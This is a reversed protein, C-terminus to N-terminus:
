SLKKLGKTFLIRCEHSKKLSTHLLYEIYKWQCEIYFVEYRKGLPLNNSPSPVMSPNDRWSTTDFHYLLFQKFLVLFWINESERRLTRCRTDTLIWQTDEVYTGKFKERTYTKLTTETLTYTVLILDITFFKM